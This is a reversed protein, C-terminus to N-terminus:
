RGSQQREWPIVFLGRSMSPWKSGGNASKPGSRSTQRHGSVPTFRFDCKPSALVAKSGDRFNRPAPM